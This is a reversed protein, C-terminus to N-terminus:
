VTQTGTSIADSPPTPKPLIDQTASDYYFQDAVVDDACADWFLPAGVPFTEGEVVVQAVRWGLIQGDYSYAPEDPSILAEKM